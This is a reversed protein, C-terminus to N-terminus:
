KELQLRWLGGLASVALLMGSDRDCDLASIAAPELVITDSNDNIGNNILLDTSKISGCSSSSILLDQKWPHAFVATVDSSSSYPQYESIIESRLDWIAISGKSTGCIIKNYISQSSISTYYLNKMSNYTPFATVGINQIPHKLAKVGSINFNKMTKTASISTINSASRQNYQSEPLNTRIDWIHLQASASQGCTLLQGSRTFELKTLGCSDAVFRRIEMGTHLDWLIVNGSDTAAALIEQDSYFSLSTYASSSVSSLTHARRLSADSIDTEVDILEITSNGNGGQDTNSIAIFSKALRSVGCIEMGTCVGNFLVECKNQFFSEGTVDDQVVYQIGVNSSPSNGAVVLRDRSGLFKGSVLSIPLTCHSM